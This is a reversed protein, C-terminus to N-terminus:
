LFVFQEFIGSKIVFGIVFGWPFHAYFEWDLDLSAGKCNDVMKM